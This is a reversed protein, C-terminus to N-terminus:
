RLILDKMQGGPALMVRVPVSRLSGGSGQYARVVRPGITANFSYSVATFPASVTVTQEAVLGTAPDPAFYRITVDGNAPDPDRLQGTATDLLFVRGSLTAKGGQAAPAGAGGLTVTIDADYNAPTGADVTGDAGRSRLVAVPDGDAVATAGDIKLLDMAHGWGDQLSSKGVGLRLYNGRWGTALLVQPDSPAARVALPALNRPNGWLEALQTAPDAGVALPLRGVDAIFGSVSLSGDAERGTLAIADDVEQLGRRTADFRTQQDVGELSRMAVTALVTLIAMVLVLELLTFGGAASLRHDREAQTM